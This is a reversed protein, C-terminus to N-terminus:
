DLRRLNKEINGKEFALFSTLIKKSKLEGQIFIAISEIFNIVILVLCCWFLIYAIDIKQAIKTNIL